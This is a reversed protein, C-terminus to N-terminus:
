NSIYFYDDLYTCIYMILPGVILLIIVTLNDLGYVTYLGTMFYLLTIGICSYTIFMRHRDGYTEADKIEEDTFQKYISWKLILTMIVHIGIGIIVLVIHLLSLTPIKINPLKLRKIATYAVNKVYFIAILSGVILIFLNLTLIYPLANLQKLYVLVMTVIFTLNTFFQPSIFYWLIQLITLINELM